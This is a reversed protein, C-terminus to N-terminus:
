NRSISVLQEISENGQIRTHFELGRLEEIDVPCFRKKLSKIAEKYCHFAPLHQVAAAQAQANMAENQAQLLQTVNELSTSHSAESSTETAPDTHVTTTEAHSTTQWAAMVLLPAMLEVLLHWQAQGM